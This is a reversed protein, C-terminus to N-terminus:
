ALRRLGDIEVCRGVSAEVAGRCQPELAARRPVCELFHFMLVLSAERLEDARAPRAAATIHLPTQSPRPSNTKAIGLPTAQAV